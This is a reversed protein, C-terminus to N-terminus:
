VHKKKAHLPKAKPTVAPVSGIDVLRAPLNNTVSLDLGAVAKGMRLSYDYVTRWRQLQWGMKDPSFIIETNQSTGVRLVEPRSIDIYKIDAVGVMPSADFQQLLDLAAMIQASDVKRGPQLEAANVGTITPLADVSPPVADSRIRSDPPLMVYGAADLHYVMPVYGTGDVKRQLTYVQAVPERETVRVRLTTPLVREVSASEILPVLELDRKVRALDLALLNDKAKIGAWRRLQEPAIVGDTRIDINRIAFADNQYVLRNLIWEGGRWTILLGFFITLFVAMLGTVFRMRAARVQSSRLKVELVHERKNLRRNKTKSQFWM